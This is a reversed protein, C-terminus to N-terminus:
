IPGSLPPLGKSPHNLHDWEVRMDLHRYGVKYIGKWDLLDYGAQMITHSIGAQSILQVNGYDADKTHPIEGCMQFVRELATSRFFGTSIAAHDGYGNCAIHCCLYGCNPNEKMRKLHIQDFHHQMFIGDDEIYFYYDFQTRYIKYTDAFSGYSMGLNPRDLIFVSANQIKGPLCNDLFYRYYDPEHPNHAVVVTIQDINHKYKELTRIHKDIYFTRCNEYRPDQMRRPGSWCCLVYNISMKEGICRPRVM